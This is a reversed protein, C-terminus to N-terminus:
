AANDLQSTQLPRGASANNPEPQSWHSLQHVAVLSPTEEVMDNCPRAVAFRYAEERTPVQSSAALQTAFFEDEAEDAWQPTSGHRLTGERALKAMLHPDRLSFGGDGVGRAGARAELDAWRADTTAWPAGVFGWEMFPGVGPRLMLADPRFVLVRQVHPGFSEWFAPMKLLGNYARGKLNPGDVMHMRSHAFSPYSGFTHLVQRSNYRTYFVHLSWSGVGSAQLMGMTNRAAFELLYTYDGEILAAALTANTSNAALEM